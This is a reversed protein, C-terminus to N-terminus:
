QALLQSCLRPRASSISADVESPTFIETSFQNGKRSFLTGQNLSGFPSFFLFFMLSLFMFFHFFASANKKNKNGMDRKLKDTKRGPTVKNKEM